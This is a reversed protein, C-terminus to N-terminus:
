KIVAFKRDKGAIGASVHYIYLGPAGETTRRGSTGNRNAPTTTHELTIMLEGAVNYVRITM